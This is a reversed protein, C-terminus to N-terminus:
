NHLKVRATDKIFKMGSGPNVSGFVESDNNLLHKVRAACGRAHSDGLIIVRHQKKELAKKKHNVMDKRIHNSNVVRLRERSVPTNDSENCVKMVDNCLLNYRNFTVPFTDAVRPEKYNYKKNKMVAVKTWSVKTEFQEKFIDKLSETNALILEINNSTACDIVRDMVILELTYAINEM